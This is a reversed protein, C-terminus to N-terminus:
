DESFKIEIGTHELNNQQANTNNIQVKTDSKFADALNKIVRSHTLLDDEDGMANIMDRQKALLEKTNNELLITIDAIEDIKKELTNKNIKHKKSVTSVKNQFSKSVKKQEVLEKLEEQEVSEWNENRIKKNIASHSIDYKKALERVSYLGTVYDAKLQIWEEKSLRAM